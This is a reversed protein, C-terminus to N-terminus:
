CTGRWSRVRLQDDGGDETISAQDIAYKLDRLERSSSHANQEAALRLRTVQALEYRRLVVGAAGLVAAVGLSM